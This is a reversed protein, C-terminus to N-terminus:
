ALRDNRADNGAAAEPAPAATKEQGPCVNGAALVLTLAALTLASSRHNRIINPM